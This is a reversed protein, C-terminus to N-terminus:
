QGEMCLAQNWANKRSIQRSVAPAYIGRIHQLIATQIKHLCYVYLNDRPESSSATDLANLLAHFGTLLLDEKPLKQRSSKQAAKVAIHIKPLLKDFLELKECGESGETKQQPCCDVMVCM